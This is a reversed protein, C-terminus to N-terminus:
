EIRVVRPLRIRGPALDLHELGIRRQADHEAVHRHDVPVLRHQPWLLEDIVARDRLVPQRRQQELVERRRRRDHDPRRQTVGGRGNRRMDPKGVRPDRQPDGFARVEVGNRLWQREVPHVARALSSTPVM